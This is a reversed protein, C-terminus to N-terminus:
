NDPYERLPFYLQGVIKGNSLDRIEGASTVLQGTKDLFIEEWSKFECVQESAGNTVDFRVLHRVAGIDFNWLIGWFADMKESYYLRVVYSTNGPDFQWKLKGDICSFCRVPGNAETFCISHSSFQADLVYGFRGLNFTHGRSMLRFLQKEQSPVILVDGYPGEIYRETRNIVEM